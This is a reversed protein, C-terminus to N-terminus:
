LWDKPWDPRAFYAMIRAIEDRLDDHIAQVRSLDGRCAVSELSRALAVAGAAGFTALSGKLTHGIRRINECNGGEIEQQLESLQRRSTKELQLVIKYLIETDNDLATLVNELDVPIDDNQRDQM